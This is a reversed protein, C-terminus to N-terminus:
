TLTMQSRCGAQPVYTEERYGSSQRVWKRSGSNKVFRVELAFRGTEVKSGHTEVGCLRWLAAILIVTLLM